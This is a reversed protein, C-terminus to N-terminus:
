KVPGRYLNNQRIIEEVAPPVLYRISRGSAIRKRIDTASIDIERHVVEYPHKTQSGARDLIVFRVLKQLDSFRHWSALAPVNDEGVLYFIESDVERQQIEEVTDITYSPPARRLECDDVAFGTDGKIAARLMSLRVEASAAPSDKHPSTAAPVFILKELGLMERADRALILHAHHIPDFTGGYIGIKKRTIM